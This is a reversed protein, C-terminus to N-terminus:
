HAPLYARYLQDKSKWDEKWCRVVDERLHLANVLPMMSDFSEHEEPSLGSFGCNYLAEFVSNNSITGITFMIEHERQHDSFLLIPLRGMSKINDFLQDKQFWTAGGCRSVYGVLLFFLSTLYRITFEYIVDQIVDCNIIIYRDGEQTIRSHAIIKTVCRGYHRQLKNTSNYWSNKNDSGIEDLASLEDWLHYATSWATCDSGICPTVVGGRDSILASESESVGFQNGIYNAVKWKAKYYSESYKRYYSRSTFERGSMETEDKGMSSELDILIPAQKCAIDHRRRLQWPHELYCSSSLIHNKDEFCDWLWEPTRHFRSTLVLVYYEPNHTLIYRPIDLSPDDQLFQESEKLWTFYGELVDM